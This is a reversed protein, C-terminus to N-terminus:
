LSQPSAKDIQRIPYSPIKRAGTPLVSRYFRYNPSDVFELVNRTVRREAQRSALRPITPTAVFAAAVAILLQVSSLAMPVNRLVSASAGFSAIM